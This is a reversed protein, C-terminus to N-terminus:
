LRTCLLRLGLLFRNEDEPRFALHAAVYPECLLETATEGQSPAYQIGPGIRTISARPIQAGPALLSLVCAAFLLWVLARVKKPM